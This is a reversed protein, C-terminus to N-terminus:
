LKEFNILIERLTSTQLGDWKVTGASGTVNCYLKNLVKIRAIRSTGKHVDVGVDILNLQVKYPTAKTLYEEISFALNLKRQHIGKQSFKFVDRLYLELNAIENETKGYSMKPNLAKKVAKQIDEITKGKRMEYFGNTESMINDLTKWKGFLIGEAMDELTQIYTRREM